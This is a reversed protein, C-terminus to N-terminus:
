YMNNRIEEYVIGYKLVFLMFLQKDFVDYVQEHKWSYLQASKWRDHTETLNHKIGFKETVTFDDNPVEWQIVVRM